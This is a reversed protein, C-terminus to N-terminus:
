KDRFTGLVIVKEVGTAFLVFIEDVTSVFVITYPPGFAVEVNIDVPPDNVKKSLPIAIEPQVEVLSPRQTFPCHPLNIVLQGSFIM